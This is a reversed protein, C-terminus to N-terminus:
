LLNVCTQGILPETFNQTFSIDLHPTVFPLTYDCGFVIPIGNFVEDLIESKCEKLASSIASTLQVPWLYGTGEFCVNGSSFVQLSIITYARAFWLTANYYGRAPSTDGQLGGNTFGSIFPIYAVNLHDSTMNLDNSNVRVKWGVIVEFNWHLSISGLGGLSLHWTNTWKLNNNENQVSELIPIYTSALKLFTEIKNNTEDKPDIHGKMVLGIPSDQHANLEFKVLGEDGKISFASACAFLLAVAIITKM